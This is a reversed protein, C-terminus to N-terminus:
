GIPQKLCKWLSLRLLDSGDGGRCWFFTDRGFVVQLTIGHREVKFLESNVQSRLHAPLFIGSGNCPFTPVCCVFRWLATDIPACFSILPSRMARHRLFCALSGTMVAEILTWCTTALDLTTLPTNFYTNPWM